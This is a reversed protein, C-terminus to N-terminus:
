RAVKEMVESCSTKKEERCVNEMIDGCEMAPIMTTVTKRFALAPPAFTFQARLALRVDECVQETVDECSEVPVTIDTCEMKPIPQCQRQNM